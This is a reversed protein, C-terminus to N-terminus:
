AGQAKRPRSSASGGLAPSRSRRRQAAEQAAQGAVDRPDAAQPITAGWADIAEKLLARPDLELYDAYASVIVGVNHPNRPWGEAREFRAITSQDVDALSAIHVQKVDADKRAKRCVAAIAQL